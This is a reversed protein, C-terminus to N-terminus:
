LDILVLLLNVCWFWIFKPSGDLFQHVINVRVEFEVCVFWIFIIFKLIFPPRFRLHIPFSINKILWFHKLIVMDVLRLVLNHFYVIKQPFWHLKSFEVVHDNIVLQQTYSVARPILSILIIFDKHLIIHWLLLPM